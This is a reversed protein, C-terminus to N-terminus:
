QYCVHQELWVVTLRSIAQVMLLMQVANVIVLAQDAAQGIQCHLEFQAEMFDVQPWTGFLIAFRQCNTGM